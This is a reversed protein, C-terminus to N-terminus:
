FISQSSAWVPKAVEHCWKVHGGGCCWAVCRVVPSYNLNFRSYHIPHRPASALCPYRRPNRSPSRGGLGGRPLARTVSIGLPAEGGWVGGRCCKLFNTRRAFKKFHNFSPPSRGGMAGWSFFIFASFQKPRFIRRGYRRLRFCLPPRDLPTPRGHAHTRLM